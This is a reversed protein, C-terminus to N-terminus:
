DIIKPAKQYEGLVILDETLPEIAKLSQRYKAYNTYVLDIHFFYRFEQGVIPVSQIKSLSVKYFSFIGLVSALSGEEHPLAFYLSAKDPQGPVFLKGAVLEEKKGIILFRTFNRKNTEIGKALIELGYMEAALSSAIAAACPTKNLAIDQASLATDASEILKIKPYQKFFVASQQIAIPHSYVEKIDEIKQGHLAMLNQEIRLNTEGIIDLKADMLLNYNQLLSGAITNEIAVAAFDATGQQVAEFVQAFTECPVPAIDNGFFYNRAAIEHFAGYGGQIAVKTAM